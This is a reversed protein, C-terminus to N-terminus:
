AAEKLKEATEIRSFDAVHDMVARIRALLQLRATRLAKDEANVLVAEFFADVPTRLTALATLAAPVDGAALAQTVKPETADLAAFLAQEQAMTLAAAATLPAYSTGDKKEEIRLINAARRYGALLNEGEVSDAFAQVAAVRARAAMMDGLPTADLVAAIADHRFGQEKFAVKLRDAFFTLLEAHTAAPASFPQLAVSLLAGLPLVLGNDFVIRTIGLAARRLAFPDKSGTPKEGVAFMGALTDLKDALAVCISVPASPVADSPGLPKYHDRIADAVAPPEGAALAYYRGMIGQLEPFEGVMGTPLDAKSLAAARAVQAKDAGPVAEAIREALASVRAVKDAITGLKAHFTIDRLKEAWAALPTKRDQDWFFRGDSLRARLVRANGAIVSAGQDRTVMNSTIVFRNAFHGQADELAFYKQHARMESILVEPPLDMFADDITGLLLVPWEVLGTVEELLGEDRKLRLSQASALAEAERLIKAKRQEADAIVYAKELAAVYDRPHAITIAAPALFRHGETVNSAKLHGFEVPIIASDLLCLIRQLPRVWQLPRAGWRMSKPWTFDRLLQEILTKLMEATPRGKQEIVAFYCTEKGIQRQELADLTLGTSKLFGQIAADPADIRPGKREITQDPQAEPLGQVELALRRPTVFTQLQAYRMNAKTLAESLMRALQEAAGRQMRAPIEESFLELLLDAM